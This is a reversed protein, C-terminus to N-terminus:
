DSPSMGSETEYGYEYGFIGLYIDCSEVKELYILDTRQDKAPLEEFIFVDSIFRRLFAAGTLFAKLDRRIDTFENQVSSIFIKLRTAPM